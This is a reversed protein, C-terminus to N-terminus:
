GEIEACFGGYAMRSPDFPMIFDQMNKYIESMEEMVKKNVQDRQEKSEFIIFSFWVNEENTAKTLETFSLNKMGGEEKPVLDDGKCEIYQLAGHKMWANRGENAMKIYEETKNKPVVFVFGDIYKSM